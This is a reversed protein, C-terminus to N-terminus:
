LHRRPTGRTAVSNCNARIWLWDKCSFEAKISCKALMLGWVLATLPLYASNDGSWLYVLSEVKSGLGWLLCIASWSVSGDGVEQEPMLLNMLHLYSKLLGHKWKPDTVFGLALCIKQQEIDTANLFKQLAGNEVKKTWDFYCSVASWFSFQLSCNLLSLHYFCPVRSFAHWSTM